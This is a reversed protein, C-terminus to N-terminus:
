AAILSFFIGIGNCILSVRTIRLSRALGRLKDYRDYVVPVALLFASFFMLFLSVFISLVSLAATFNSTLLVTAAQPRSGVPDLKTSPKSVQLVPGAVGEGLADAKM